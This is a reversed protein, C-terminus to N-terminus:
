RRIDGTDRTRPLRPLLAAATRRRISGAWVGAGYAADDIWSAVTWSIPDLRPQRDAWAALPPAALTALWRWRRHSRVLALTAIPWGLQTLWRTTALGVQAPAFLSAAVSGTIPVGARRLRRGLRGATVAAVTAAARPQGTAALAVTALPAPQITLTAAGPHRQALAAASTGYRFRRRLWASWTSPEAHHAVASPDLRVDYGAAVLRWVLDVDEGLRLSEDFGGVAEFASRRVVLVTSPVYPVHGQPHVRAPDGGLDLPSGYTALAGLVRGRDAFSARVRPAVAAVLPDAFHAALRQLATPAVVVDSDVFAVLERHSGSMGANRAAGPGRNVPL